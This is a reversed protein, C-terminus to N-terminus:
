RRIEFPMPLSAAANVDLEIIELQSVSAGNPGQRLALELTFLRDTNGCVEAVVLGDSTNQVFGALGGARAQARVFWRFGVGQVRGSVIYRRAQVGTPM